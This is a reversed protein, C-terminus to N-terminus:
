VAAATVAGDPYVPIWGFTGDSRAVRIAGLGAVAATTTNITSASVFAGSRLGMAAASAVSGVGLELVGISANASPTKELRLASGTSSNSLTLTPESDDGIMNAGVEADLNILNAMHNDGGKNGKDPM